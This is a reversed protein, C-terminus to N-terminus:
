DKPAAFTFGSGKVIWGTNHTPVPTLGTCPANTCLTQMTSNNTDFGAFYIACARGDVGCEDPFPSVAEARVSVMGTVTTVRPIHILEYSDAANRTFYYADGEWVKSNDVLVIPRDPKPSAFGQTLSLEMGILRKAPGQLDRWRPMDNYASIGYAGPMDWYNSVTNKVDIEINSAGTAPVIRIIRNVTGEEAALLVPDGHYTDATLGRIGDNSHLINTDTWVVKWRPNCRGADFVQQHTCVGQDGDQRELVQFCIAAYLKGGAEAFSTVRDLPPDVANAPVSCTPGQYDSSKFEVNQSGTIWEIPNRGAGRRDSLLGAFIGMPNSGAFVWSQKTVADTHAGFSRVAGNGNDVVELTTEYWKGDINNKAFVNIPDPSRKDWTAAVLFSATIPAGNKDATFPVVAMIATALACFPIRTPCFDGFNVEQKWAGHSSDLRLVQANQRGEPGPQDMWYGNGAYLSGRFTVLSRVETGGMFHGTPDIRPGEFSLEFNTPQAAVPAGAAILLAIAVGSTKLPLFRTM